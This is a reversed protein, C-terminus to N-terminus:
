PTWCFCTILWLLLSVRPNNSRRYSENILIFPMIHHKLNHCVNLLLVRISNDERFAEIQSNARGSTGSVKLGTTNQAVCFKIQRARLFVGLLVHTEPWNSFILVKSKKDKVIEDLKQIVKALKTGFIEDNPVTM